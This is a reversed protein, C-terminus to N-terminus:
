RFIVKTRESSNQILLLTEVKRQYHQSLEIFPRNLYLSGKSDVELLLTYFREWKPLHRRKVKIDHAHNKISYNM